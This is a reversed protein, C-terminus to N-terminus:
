LTGARLLVVAGQVTPIAYGADDVLLVSWRLKAKENNPSLTWLDAVDIRLKLMGDTPDDVTWGVVVPWAPPTAYYDATTIEMVPAVIAVGTVPDREPAEVYLQARVAYGTLDVPVGDENELVITEEWTVGLPVVPSYSGFQRAM